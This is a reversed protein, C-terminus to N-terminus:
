APIEGVSVVSSGNKATVMMVPVRSLKGPTSRIRKLIELGDVDPLMIDL